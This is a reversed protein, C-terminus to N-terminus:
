KRCSACTGRGIISSCRRFPRPILAPGRGEANAFHAVLRGMDELRDRLPPLEIPEAGLRGLLAEQVAVDTSSAARSSAAIVRVDAVQSRTGGVRTFTQDQVFRLLKSQTEQPMEGLEDLFLTGGCAAEILGPKRARATSHAGREYGFLETEVLERPLAACNIAVFQGSRGSHAHIARAFVEKGTGTEGLLMIESRSPALRRLKFCVQALAPSLTAVPAFPSAQEAEIAAADAATVTRFVAVQAGFFLVSGERLRARGNVVVGDVMTGNRSALDEVVYPGADGASIRAHHSSVTRDALVVAAREGGGPPHRGIEFGSPGGAVRHGGRLSVLSSGNGVVLLM